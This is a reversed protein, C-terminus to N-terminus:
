SIGSFFLFWFGFFGWGRCVVDLCDIFLFILNINHCTKVDTEKSLIDVKM